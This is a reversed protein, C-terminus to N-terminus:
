RILSYRLFLKDGFSRAGSIALNKGEYSFAEESQGTKLDIKKIVKESKMM